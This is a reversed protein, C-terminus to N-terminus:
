CPRKRTVYSEPYKLYNIVVTYSRSPERVIFSISKGELKYAYIQGKENEILPPNRPMKCNNYEIIFYKFLIWM